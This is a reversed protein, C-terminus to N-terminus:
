AIQLVKGTSDAYILHPIVSSRLKLFDHIQQIFEGFNMNKSQLLLLFLYINRNSAKYVSNQNCLIQLVSKNSSQVRVKTGVLFM